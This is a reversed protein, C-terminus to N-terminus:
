WEYDGQTKGFIWDKGDINVLGSTFTCKWKNKVRSVKEYTCVMLQRVDGSDDEDEVEAPDDLDSNIAEDDIDDSDGPGDVAPPLTSTHYSKSRLPVTISGSPLIDIETTARSKSKGKYLDQLPEMMATRHDQAAPIRLGFQISRDLEAASFHESSPGESKDKKAHARRAAVAAKWAAMAQVDDVEDTSGDLQSAQLSSGRQTPSSANPQSGPFILGSAPKGQLAGVQHTAQSGFKKELNQAARM